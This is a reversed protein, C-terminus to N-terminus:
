QDSRKIMLGANAGGFGFSLNMVNELRQKQRHIGPVYDLDCEPDPNDLHITAPIIGTEIVKLCFIAELAGAAGILHGTYSKTSSMPIGFAADGLAMKVSRTENVDNLPTSTGHLNIYDIHEPQVNAQRCLERIVQVRAQLDEAPATMDEADSYNGYGTIEGLIQAGRAKAFEYDEMCLVAAGESLVFGSRGKSFPCCALRPDNQEKSLAQIVDVSWVNFPDKLAESGGAIMITARGSRIAEYAEGIAVTGSACAAVPSNQLGRFNWNMSIAATAANCMSMVTAFSTAIGDSMYARVNENAADLGGWGTGLMVGCEFPSVREHPHTLGFAMQIAENAAALGYKAFPSLMKTIKKSFPRMAGRDLDVFGFFRAQISNDGIDIMKYGLQYDMIGNWIQRVERGMSTIAGYGTVAVRRGQSSKNLTM